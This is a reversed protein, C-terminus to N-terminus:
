FIPLKLNTFKVLFSYIQNNKHHSTVNLQRSPLNLKAKHRHILKYGKVVFFLNFFTVKSSTSFKNKLM